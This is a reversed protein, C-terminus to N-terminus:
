LISHGQARNAGRSGAGLSLYRGVAMFLCSLHSFCYCGLEQTSNGIGPFVQFDRGKRLRDRDKM